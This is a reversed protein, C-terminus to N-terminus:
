APAILAGAASDVVGLKLFVPLREALLINYTNIQYTQESGRIVGLSTPVANKISMYSNRARIYAWGSALGRPTNKNTTYVAVM